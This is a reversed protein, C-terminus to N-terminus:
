VGVLLGTVIVYALTRSIVRNIDFLRYRLIAVGMCVPIALLAVAGRSGESWPPSGECALPVDVVVLALILAGVVLAIVSSVSRFRSSGAVSM